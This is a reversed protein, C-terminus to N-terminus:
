LMYEPNRVPYEFKKGEAVAKELLKIAQTYTCRAFPNEAVHKLRQVAEKDIRDTIFDM